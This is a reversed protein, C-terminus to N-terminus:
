NVTGDMKGQCLASTYISVCTCKCDNCISTNTADLETHFLGSHGICFIRYLTATTTITGLMRQSVLSAVVKGPNVNPEKSMLYAKAVEGSVSEAPVLLDAFAGIWVYAFTKKLPVKVSLPLLLYQWTLSFLFTELLLAVAALSYFIMNAHQIIEIMKPIDVFFVLYLVFFSIGIVLFPVTRLLVKRRENM